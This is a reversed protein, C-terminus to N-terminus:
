PLLSHKQILLNISFQSIHLHVRENTRFAPNSCESPIHAGHQYFQMLFRAPKPLM